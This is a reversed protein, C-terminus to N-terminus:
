HFPIERIYVGRIPHFVIQITIPGPVEVHKPTEFIYAAQRIHKAQTASDAAYTSPANSIFRGNPMALCFWFVVSHLDGISDIPIDVDWVCTNDSDDDCGDDSDSSDINSDDNGDNQYDDDEDDMKNKNATEHVNQEMRPEINSSVQDMSASEQKTCSSDLRNDICSQTCYQQQQAGDTVYEKRSIQITKLETRLVADDKGWEERREKQQNLNLVRHQKIPGLPRHPIRDLVLDRYVQVRFRNFSRLDANAQHPDVANCRYLYISEVPLMCIDIESPFALPLFPPPLIRSIHKLTQRVCSIAGVRIVGSPDLVEWLLATYKIKDKMNCGVKTYSTYFSHDTHLRTKYTKAVQSACKSILDADQFEFSCCHVTGPFMNQFKASWLQDLFRCVQNKDKADAMSSIISVDPHMGTSDLTIQEHTAIRGKDIMGTTKLHKRKSLTAPQKFDTTKDLCTDPDKPVNYKTERDLHSFNRKICSAGQSFELPNYQADVVTIIPRVSTHHAPLLGPVRSIYVIPFQEVPPLSSCDSIYLGKMFAICCKYEEIYAGDNWAAMDAEGFLDSVNIFKSANLSDIDTLHEQICSRDIDRNRVRVARTGSAQCDRNQQQYIENANWRPASQLQTGSLIKNQQSTTATQSLLYPSYIEENVTVCAEQKDDSRFRLEISVSAGVNVNPTYPLYHVCQDWGCDLGRCPSTSVKTSEQEDELLHLDFWTVLADATGSDHAITDVSFFFEQTDFGLPITGFMVPDCLPTHPILALNECTYCEDDAFLLHTSNNVDVRCRSRLEDSNIVMGWVYAHHPVIIGYPKLLRARADALVPLIHEGVLGADVLETIVLDVREPFDVGVRLDTSHKNLVCIDPYTTCDYSERDGSSSINGTINAIMLLYVKM